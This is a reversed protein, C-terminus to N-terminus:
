AATGPTSKKRAPSIHLPAYEVPPYLGLQRRIDDLPRPLLDVWNQEPLWSARLARVAAQLALRQGKFRRLRLSYLGLLAMACVGTNRTQAATFALLCVEGILDTQYGTVLHYIDHSHFLFDQIFREDPPLNKTREANTGEEVYGTMGQQAVGKQQCFDCYARGLSGEPLSELWGWDALADRLSPRRVLLTRGDESQRLRRLLRQLSRGQLAEIVRAIQGTDHPHRYLYQLVEWGERWRIRYYNNETM